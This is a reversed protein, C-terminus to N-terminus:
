RLLRQIPATDRSSHRSGISTAATMTLAKSELIWDRIKDMEAIEIDYSLELEEKTCYQLDEDDVVVSEEAAMYAGWWQSGDDDVYVKLLKWKTGVAGRFRTPTEFEVGEMDDADTDAVDVLVEQGNDIAHRIEGVIDVVDQLPNQRGLLRRQQLRQRLESATEEEGDCPRTLGCIFGPLWRKM